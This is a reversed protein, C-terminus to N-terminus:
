VNSKELALDQRVPMDSTIITPFPTLLLKSLYFYEIEFFIYSLKLKTNLEALTM